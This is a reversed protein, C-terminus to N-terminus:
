DVWQIHSLDPITVEVKMEELAKKALNRVKEWSDDTKLSETTLCGEKRSLLDIWNFCRLIAAIAKKSILDEEIIQPLLLFSDYFTSIIEDIANVFNPLVKIQKEYPIAILKLSEVLIKYQIITSM